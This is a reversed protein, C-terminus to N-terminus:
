TSSRTATGMPAARRRPGHAPHVRRERRARLRRRHGRRRTPPGAGSRPRDRRVRSGRGSGAVPRPGHCLIPRQRHRADRPRRIGGRPGAPLWRGLAAPHRARRHVRPLPRARAAARGTRSSSRPSSSTRGRRPRRGPRGAGHSPAHRWAGGRRAGHVSHTTRSSPGTAFPRTSARCTRSSASAPEWTSTASKPTAWRAPRAARGGRRVGRPPQAPVRRPPPALEVDAATMLANRAPDDGIGFGDLVVLVVTM